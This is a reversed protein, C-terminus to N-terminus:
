GRRAGRSCQVERDEVAGVGLRAREFVRQQAGPHRVADDAARAEEVAGLDAVDHAVELGDHVGGVLDRELADDVRGLAADAAGGDLADVEVRAVAAGAEFVRHAERDVSSRKWARVCAASAPKM